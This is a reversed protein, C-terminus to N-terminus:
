GPRDVVPAETVAGDDSVTTAPEPDDPGPLEDHHEPADETIALDPAFVAEAGQAADGGRLDAVSGTLAVVLAAVLVAGVMGGAGYAELGAMAAILTVAPGVRMTRREIYPQVVVIELTQLAIALALVSLARGPSQAAALGVAALSGVVIGVMPLISFVGVALGLLTAGPLDLGLAFLWTVAGIVLAKSLTLGIYRCWRGHARRLVADADVRRGDNPLQRLSGEIIRGGHLVLFLTLIATTLYAIGRSGASRLAAQTDGGQLRAPLDTVLTEARDALDVRRALDGFRDSEELDEAADPVARELREAQDRFDDYGSWALAALGGIAGLMVMAVALGRPMRRSLLTVAPTLLAAAMSAALVWGLVRSASELVAVVLLVVGVVAVALALSRATFRLRETPQDSATTQEVPGSVPETADSAHFEPRTWPEGTM